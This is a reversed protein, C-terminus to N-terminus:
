KVRRGCEPCTGSVNAKLSYGCRGCRGESVRQEPLDHRLSFHAVVCGVAIALVWAAATNYMPNPFIWMLVYSSLFLTGFGSAVGRFLASDGRKKM